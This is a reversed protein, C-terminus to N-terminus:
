FGPGQAVKNKGPDPGVYAIWEGKVAVSCQELFEGTYVNLVTGDVIALDAKERGLAVDIVKQAELTGTESILGYRKM